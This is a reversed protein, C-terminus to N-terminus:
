TLQPITGTSMGNFDSAEIGFWRLTTLHLNAISTEEPCIVHGVPKLRGGARGFCAIPLDINSHIHGEKLSSGFFVVSNDLATGNGEQIADLRALLYAVQSAHWENVRCYQEVREPLYRHHSCGSHFPEKVGDIFSFNAESLTNTLVLSAVRTSDTWIALTILDLMLQVHEARNAPVGPSPVRFASEPPATPPTWSRKPPNLTQEIRREVGRVSELYEDIKQKDLSSGQRRVAAAQENVLDLVSTQWRAQELAAAGSYRRFLNDFVARPAIESQLM